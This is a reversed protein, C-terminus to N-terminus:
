HTKECKRFANECKGISASVDVSVRAIIGDVMQIGGIKKRVIYTTATKYTYIAVEKAVGTKACWEDLPILAAVSAFDQPPAPIDVSKSRARSTSM